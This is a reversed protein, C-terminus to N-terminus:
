GKKTLWNRQLTAPLTAVIDDRVKELPTIGAEKIDEV